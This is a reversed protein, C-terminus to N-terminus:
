SFIRSSKEEPWRSGFGGDLATRYAVASALLSSSGSSCRLHWLSVCFAIGLSNLILIILPFGVMGGIASVAPHTPQDPHATRSSGIELRRKM